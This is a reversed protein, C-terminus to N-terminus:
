LHKRLYALALEVLEPDDRFQGIANNCQFCLLGRVNGTAHCHDLAFKKHKYGPNTTGCIACRGKQAALLDDYMTAAFFRPLAAVDRSRRKANNYVVCDLCWRHLGDFNTDCRGFKDLPLTKRCSYCFKMGEPASFQPPSKLRYENYRARQCPKCAWARGNRRQRDKHFDTLPKAIGCKPCIRLEINEM